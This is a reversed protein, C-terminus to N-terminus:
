CGACVPHNIKVLATLQIELFLLSFDKCNCSSTDQNAFSRSAALQILEM